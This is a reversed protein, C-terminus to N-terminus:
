VGGIMKLLSSQSIGETDMCRATPDDWQPVNEPYIAPNTYIPIIEDYVDMEDEAGIIHTIGGKPDIKHLCYGNPHKKWTYDSMYAMRIEDETVKKIKLKIIM